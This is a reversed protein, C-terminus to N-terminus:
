VKIPFDTSCRPYYERGTEGAHGNRREWMSRALRRTRL